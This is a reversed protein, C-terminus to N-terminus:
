RSFHQALILKAALRVMVPPFVLASIIRPLFAFGNALGASPKATPPWAPRAPAPIGTPEYLCEVPAHGIVKGYFNQSWAISAFEGILGLLILWSGLRRASM